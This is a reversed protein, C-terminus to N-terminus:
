GIIRTMAQTIERGTARRDIVAHFGPASARPGDALAILRPLVGRDGDRRLTALMAHADNVQEIGILFSDPRLHVAAAGAEFLGAARELRYHPETLASRLKGVTAAEEGVLLVLEATPGAWEPPRIGVTRMYELLDARGVRNHGGPTKMAPILGRNIAAIITNKHVQCLRAVEATTYVDKAGPDGNSAGM